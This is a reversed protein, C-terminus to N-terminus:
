RMVLGSVVYGVLYLEGLISAVLLAAVLSAGLDCDARRRNPRISPSAL